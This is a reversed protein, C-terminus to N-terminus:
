ICFRTMQRTSIFCRLRLIQESRLECVSRLVFNGAALLVQDSPRLKKPVLALWGLHHGTILLRQSENMATGVQTLSPLEWHEDWSGDALQSHALQEAVKFLASEVKSRLSRDKWLPIKADVSLFVALAYLSHTGWCSHTHSGRIRTRRLLEKTIVDFSVSEGVRNTWTRVQPRYLALAVSRWEIEEDFGVSEACEDVLDAVRFRRGAFIATRSLPVGAEALASLVQGPHQEGVASRHGAVRYRCGFETFEVYGHESNDTERGGGPLLQELLFSRSEQLSAVIRSEYQANLEDTQLLREHGAREHADVWRMLHSLTAVSAESPVEIRNLVRALQGAGVATVPLRHLWECSNPVRIFNGFQRQGVRSHDALHGMEM